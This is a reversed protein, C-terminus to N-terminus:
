PFDGNKIPLDAIFPGNEITKKHKGSPLKSASLIEDLTSHHGALQSDQTRSDLLKELCPEWGFFPGL